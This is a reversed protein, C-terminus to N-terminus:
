MQLSPHKCGYIIFSLSGFVIGKCSHICNRQNAISELNVQEKHCRHQKAGCMNLYIAMSCLRCASLQHRASDTAMLLLFDQGPWTSGQDTCISRTALVSGTLMSMGATESMLLAETLPALCSVTHSVLM